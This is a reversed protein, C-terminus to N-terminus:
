EVPRSQEPRENNEGSRRRYLLVGLVVVVLLLGGGLAPVLPFSSRQEPQTVSVPISYTDSIVTDGDAEDYRFDIEAPYDKELASGGSSIDFVMVASQGPELRQVYAEDDASDLPSETYLKGSVDSVPEDLRNTVRVELRSSGGATVTANITEIDFEDRSEAIRVQTELEDSTRQEDDVDRYRVTFSFQRPGPEASSTAEVSFNFRAAQGSDLQGIAYETETPTVTESTEGFVVVANRASRDGTNVIEGSVRGEEGARLSSDVNRLAFTQEEIPTVGFPLARSTADNGDTDEYDVTAYLTYNRTEADRTATAEYELTRTENAAWPGVFRSATASGGFRVDPTRSEISVAADRAAEEGVNEMTVRVTGSGDIPVSSETATVNFRARPEVRVNACRTQTTKDKIDFESTVDVKLCYEGAPVDNPVSVQFSVTRYVNETMRGLVRTGSEVTFPTDGARMEVKVNRAPDVDKIPETPTNVVTVAVEQTRGPEVVEEPMFVEFNPDEAASVVPAGASILLGVVAVLALIRNRTM